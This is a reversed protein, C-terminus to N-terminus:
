IEEYSKNKYLAIYREIVMVIVLAFLALVQEAPFSNSKLADAVNGGVGPNM